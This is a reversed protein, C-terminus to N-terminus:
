SDIKQKSDKVDFKSNEAITQGKKMAELKEEEMRQEKAKLELQQKLNSLTKNQQVLQTRISDVVSNNTKEIEKASAEVKKYQSDLDINGINITIKKNFNNLKTQIASLEKNMEKFISLSTSFKSLAEDSIQLDVKMTLKEAFSDLKAQAKNIATKTISNMNISVAVNLKLKGKYLSDLKKQIDQVQQTNFESKIDLQIPIKLGNKGFTNTIFKNLNDVTKKEDVSLTYTFGMNNALIM